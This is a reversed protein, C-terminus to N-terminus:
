LLCNVPKAQFIAHLNNPAAMGQGISFVGGPLDEYKGEEQNFIVQEITSADRGGYEKPWRICAWGADYKRKQWLKARAMGDLGALDEETPVNDALWARVEERFAAEAPSDKFDM